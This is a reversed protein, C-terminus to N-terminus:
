YKKFNNMKKRVFDGRDDNYRPHILNILTLTHGPNEQYKEELEQITWLELISRIIKQSQSGLGRGFYKSRLYEVVDLLDKSGLDSLLDCIIGKHIHDSLFRSPASALLISVGLSMMEYSTSIILKDLYRDPSFRSFARLLNVNIVVDEDSLSSFKKESTGTMLIRSVKEEVKTM